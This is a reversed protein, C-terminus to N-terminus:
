ASPKDSVLAMKCYFSVDLITSHIKYVGFIAALLQVLLLLNPNQGELAQRNCFNFTVVLLAYSLLVLHLFVFNILTVFYTVSTTFM